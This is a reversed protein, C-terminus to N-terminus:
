LLSHFEWILGVQAQLTKFYQLRRRTNGLIPTRRKSEVYVLIWKFPGGM